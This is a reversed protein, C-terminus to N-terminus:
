LSQIRRLIFKSILPQLTPPLAGSGFPIWQYVEGAILDAAQLSAKIRPDSLVVDGINEYMSGYVNSVERPLTRAIAILLDRLKTHHKIPNVEPHRAFVFHVPERIAVVSYLAAVSQRVVYEYTKLYTRRVQGREPVEFVNYAAVVLDVHSQIAIRLRKIFSDRREADWGAHAGHGRRLDKWHFWRVGKNDVVNEEALIDLWEHELRIWSAEDAIGGAIVFSHVNPDSPHGAEDFYGWLGV